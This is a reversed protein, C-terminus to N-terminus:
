ELGGLYEKLDSPLKSVAKLKKEILERYDRDPDIEVESCHLFQRKLRSDAGGYKRDGAVPHGLYSLTARIQHSRGTVLKVELLTHNKFRKVVSFVSIVDVYGEKKEKSVMLRNNKEDKKGYLTVKGDNDFRGKVLATYKKRILGRGTMENLLMLSRRDKGAILVGSTNMDLRTVVGANMLGAKKMLSVADDKGTGDGQSLLGAPKDLVLIRDNEFLVPVSLPKTGSNQKEEAFCSDPLFFDVTDGENVRASGEAKRGNLKINKKRLNKQIEGKKLVTVKSVYRDLRMGSYNLDVTLSKM